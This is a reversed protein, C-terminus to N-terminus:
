SKKNTDYIFKYQKCNHLKSNCAYQVGGGTVGIHQAAQKASEFERIFNWNEDYMLVKKARLSKGGKVFNGSNPKFPKRTFKDVILEHIEGESLAELDREFFWAFGKATKGTGTLSACRGIVSRHINFHRSATAASPYKHILRCNVDYGVVSKANETGTFSTQNAFSCGDGGGTHNVLDFGWTKMQSIWYVEWFRWNDIPVEDIVEVKPKLGLVKLENIWNLKHTQHKRARNLHARYRRSINNTKGIYRVM